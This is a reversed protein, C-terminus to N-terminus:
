SHERPRGVRINFSTAVVPPPAVEPQDLRIVRTVYTTSLRYSPQVADWIRMMDEIPLEEPLVHVVDGPDFDAGELMSADLLPQRNLQSVAWAFVIQEAAAGNAWVSLMWHLEVPLAPQVQMPTRGAQFANRLQESITMRYLFFTLAVSSDSPDDFESLQGTSLVQFSCPFDDRLSQPYSTSLYVRLAEGVSQFARVNAM